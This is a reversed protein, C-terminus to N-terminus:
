ASEGPEPRSGDPSGSSPLSSAIGSSAQAALPSQAKEAGPSVAQIAGDPAAAPPLVEDRQKAAEREEGFLPIAQKIMEWLGGWVGGRWGRVVGLTLEPQKERLCLYALYARGKVSNVVQVDTIYGVQAEFEELDALTPSTWTYETDEVLIQGSITM